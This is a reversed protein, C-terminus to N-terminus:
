FADVLNWKPRAALRAPPARLWSLSGTGGLAPRLGVGSFSIAFKQCCVIIERQNKYELEIYANVMEWKMQSLCASSRRM